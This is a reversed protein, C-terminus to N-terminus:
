RWPRNTSIEAYTKPLDSYDGLWAIRGADDIVVAGKEIHLMDAIDGLQPAENFSLLQGRLLHM